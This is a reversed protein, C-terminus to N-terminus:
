IKEIDLFDVYWLKGVDDIVRVDKDPFPGVEDIKVITGKYLAGDVTSINEIMRVKQGDKYVSYEMKHKEGRKEM